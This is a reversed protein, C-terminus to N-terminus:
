SYVKDWIFKVVKIIVPILFMLGVVWPPVGFAAGLIQNRIDLILRYLPIGIGFFAAVIAIISSFINKM